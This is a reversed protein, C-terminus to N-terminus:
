VATQLFSQSHYVSIHSIYHHFTQPKWMQAHIFAIDLPLWIGINGQCMPIPNGMLLADCGLFDFYMTTSFRLWLLWGICLSYFKHCVSYWAWDQDLCEISCLSWVASLWRTAALPALTHDSHEPELILSERLIFRLCISVWVLRSNLSIYSFFVCRM